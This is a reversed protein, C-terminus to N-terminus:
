AEGRRIARVIRATSDAPGIRIYSAGLGRLIAETKLSGSLDAYLREIEPMDPEESTKRYWDDYTNIVLM